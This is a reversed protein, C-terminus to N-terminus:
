LARWVWPWRKPLRPDKVWALNGMALPHQVVELVRDCRSVQNRGSRFFRNHHVLSPPYQRAKLAWGGHTVQLQEANDAAFDRLFGAMRLCDFLRQLLQDFLIELGQRDM